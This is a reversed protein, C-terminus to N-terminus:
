WRKFRIDGIVIESLVSDFLLMYYRVEKGRLGEPVTVELTHWAGDGILSQPGPIDLDEGARGTVRLSFSYMEKEAMSASVKYSVSFLPGLVFPDQRGNLITYDAIFFLRGTTAALARFVLAGERILLLGSSDFNILQHQRFDAVYVTSDMAGSSGQRRDTIKLKGGRVAALRERFAGGGSSHALVEELYVLGGAYLDFLADDMLIMGEKGAIDMVSNIQHVKDSRVLNRVTQSAKMVECACAFGAGDRRNLLRQSIIGKLVVSLQNQARAREEESFLDLVRNITQFASTTHLTAFVLHGTEALEIAATMSERDRIEGILVVDADERFLRKLADLFSLTDKGVERQSVISRAPTYVFEIPDEVTVIHCSRGENILDILSALTTSKGSGTPGTILVLGWIERTFEKLAVPLGLTEFPPVRSPIPRLVMGLLGSRYFANVRFRGRGELSFGYDLEREREFTDYQLTSVTSRLLEEVDRNTLVPEALRVIEKKNGLPPCGAFFFISKVGENVAADITKELIPPKL